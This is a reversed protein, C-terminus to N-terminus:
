FSGRCRTIFCLSKIWQLAGGLMTDIQKLCLSAQARLPLPPPPPPPSPSPPAYYRARASLFSCVHSADTFFIRIVRTTNDVLSCGFSALRGSCYVRGSGSTSHVQEVTDAAGRRVACLCVRNGVKLFAHTRTCATSPRCAAREGRVRM